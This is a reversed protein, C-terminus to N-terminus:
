IKGFLMECKKKKKSAKIKRITKRSNTMKFVSLKERAQGSQQNANKKNDNQLDDNQHNANHGNGKLQVKQENKTQSIKM